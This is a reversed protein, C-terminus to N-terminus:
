KSKADEGLREILARSLALVDEGLAAIGESQRSLDELLARLKVLGSRDSATEAAAEASHLGESLRTLMMHRLRGRRNELDRYQTKLQKSILERSLEGPRGMQRHAIVLVGWEENSITSQPWHSGSDLDRLMARANMLQVLAKGPQTYRGFVLM